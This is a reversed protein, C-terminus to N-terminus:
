RREPRRIVQYNNVVAAATVADAAVMGIIAGM